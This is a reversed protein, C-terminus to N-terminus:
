PLCKSLKLITSFQSKSWSTAPFIAPTLPRTLCFGLASLGHAWSLATTACPGSPSALGAALGTGQVAGLHPDGSLKRQLKKQRHLVLVQRWLILTVIKLNLELLFLGCRRVQYLARWNTQENILESMNLLINFVVIYWAREHSCFIYCHILHLSQM